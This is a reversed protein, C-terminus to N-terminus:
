DRRRRFADSKSLYDRAAARTALAQERNMASVKRAQQSLKAIAKARQFVDQMEATQRMLWRFELLTSVEDISDGDFM